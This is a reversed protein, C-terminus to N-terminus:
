AKSTKPLNLRKRLYPYTCMWERIKFESNQLFGDKESTFFDNKILENRRLSLNDFKNSLREVIAYYYISCSSM